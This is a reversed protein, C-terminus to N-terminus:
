LVERTQQDTIIVGVEYDRNFWKECGTKGLQEREEIGVQPRKQGSLDARSSQKSTPGSDDSAVQCM